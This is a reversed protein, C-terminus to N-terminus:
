SAVQPPDRRFLEDITCNLADALDPLMTSPPNRSGLEWMTITSPSKLGLRDALQSQTLGLRQRHERIRFTNNIPIMEKGKDRM